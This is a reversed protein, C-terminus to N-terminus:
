AASQRSLIQRAKRLRPYLSERVRLKGETAIELARAPEYPIVPPWNNVTARTVGIARAVASQNGDFFAIADDKRM